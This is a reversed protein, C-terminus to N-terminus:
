ADSSEGVAAPVELTLVVDPTEVRGYAKLIRVARNSWWTVRRPPLWTGYRRELVRRAGAYAESHNSYPREVTDGGVTDSIRLTCPLSLREAITQNFDFKDAYEVAEEDSNFTLALKDRDAAPADDLDDIRLKWPGDLAEAWLLYRLGTTASTASLPSILGPIRVPIFNLM